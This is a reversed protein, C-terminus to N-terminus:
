NGDKSEGKLEKTVRDREEQQINLKIWEWVGKVVNFLFQFAIVTLILRFFAGFSIFWPSLFDICILSILVVFPLALFLAAKEDNTLKAMTLLKKTTLIEIQNYIDSLNLFNM